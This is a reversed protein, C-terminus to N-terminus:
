NEETDANDGTIAADAAPHETQAPRLKAALAALNAPEMARVRGWPDRTKCLKSPDASPDTQLWRQAPAEDDGRMVHLCWVADFDHAVPSKHTLTQGPMNPVMKAGDATLVREQKATCVIHQPSRPMDAGLFRKVTDQMMGYAARGDRAQQQAEHLAMEAWATLSDIIIWDIADTKRACIDLVAPLDSAKDLTVTHMDVDALSLTGDEVAVILARSPDPVTRSLYTKGAGSEGHILIRLPKGSGDNTKGWKM